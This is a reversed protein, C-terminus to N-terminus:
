RDDHGAGRRTRRETQPPTGAERMREAIRGGTFEYLGVASEPSYWAMHPTAITRPHTVLARMMEEQGTDLVDLGACTLHGSDLAALLAPQSVVGARATNVLRAGPRMEQLEQEGVLGRTAPTLQVHVSVVDAWGLLAPLDTAIEVRGAFVAPVGSRNHVRVSMGLALAQEAVLRGVAGFGILGLRAGRIRLPHTRTIDFADEGVTRVGGPLDRLVALVLALTHDAAEWRNAGPTNFVEIGLARAAPLDINDLAVSPVGVWRLEPAQRLDDRRLVVDPELVCAVADPAEALSPVRVVRALGRLRHQLVERQRELPVNTIFAVTPEEGTPTRRSM